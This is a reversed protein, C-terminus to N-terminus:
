KIRYFSKATDTTIRAIEEINIDMIQSLKAAAIPITSPTNEKIEKSPACFPSDTELVINEIGARTAVKRRNKRIAVNTPISIIYGLDLARNVNELNGEFSHLLVPTQAYKELLELGRVEAKRTHIVLPLDFETALNICDIFLIEQQRREIDDKVWYYDLGVEGIASINAGSDLKDRILDANLISKALTPQLGLHISIESHNESKIVQDFARPDSACNVIHTVNNEKAKIIVQKIKEDDFWKKHLHCHADIFEM